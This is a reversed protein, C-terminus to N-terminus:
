PCDRMRRFLCEKVIVISADDLAALVFIHHQDAPGLVAVPNFLVQHRDRCRFCLYGVFQVARTKATKKRRLQTAM